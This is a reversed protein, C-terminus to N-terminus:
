TPCSRTSSRTARAWTSTSGATATSTASTPQGDARVHHPRPRVRAAVDEFGGSARRWPVPAFRRTRPAQRARPPQAVWSSLNGNEAITARWSCTSTATTTTTGSGPPSAGSAPGGGRLRRPAVDTFTGDGDNRYLRNAADRLNSVYLDPDGDGDYDGWCVGKTFRDNTVGAHRAVDEFTGNGKNRFLQCPAQTNSWTENGVYLDLDGDGDYDAWAATQTAYHVDGLGAEFTVDEFRGEGDNRLLSNPHRGHVGLWAGRLVLVDTDGDNDYDAQVMNLGGYLGRLGATQARDEFTGDGQNHFLHMPGLSDWTSTLIDLFGDGDFDDVVAGGALDYVDLGLQPAVNRFRPFDIDSALAERSIRLGEPVGEPWTGLTMHAVNLLWTASLVLRKDGHRGRAVREFHELATTSGRKHVHLGAGRIPIICSDPSHRHCCNQREGLQLWAVGTDYDLRAQVRSPLAVGQSIRQAEQYHEIAREVNGLRLEARAAGAFLALRERPDRIESARELLKRLERAQQSGLFENEFPTAAAVRRLNARIADEARTSPGDGPYAGLGYLM